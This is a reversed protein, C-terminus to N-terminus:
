PLLSEEPCPVNTVSLDGADACSLYSSLVYTLDDREVTVEVDYLAPPDTTPIDDSPAITWSVTYGPFNAISNDIGSCTPFGEDFDNSAGIPSTTSCGAYGTRKGYSAYGYGRIVEIQESALDRATSAELSDRTTRFGYVQSMALALFVISVISFSILVEILSLGAQSHRM